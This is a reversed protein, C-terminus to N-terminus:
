GAARARRRVIGAKGVDALFDLMMQVDPQAQPTQQAIQRIRIKASELSLNERYLAKHMAKVAAIREPSFG